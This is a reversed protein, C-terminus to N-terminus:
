SVLAYSGSDVTIGDVTVAKDSYNVYVGIDEGFRTLYVQTVVKEHSTIRKGRLSSLESKMRDYYAKADGLSNMYYYSDEEESMDDTCYWEYYPIAGYEVSKLMQAKSDSNLNIGELSYDVLGHLVAQIFPVTEFGDSDGRSSTSPLGVIGSAYKLTYLNGCNMMIKKSAFVSGFVKTIANKVNERISYAKNSHDTYLSEGADNIYIGKFDQERIDRILSNLSDSIKKHSALGIKEGTISKASSGCSYISYDSFIAVSDDNQTEMLLELEKDSGLDDKIKVSGDEYVGKLILNIHSFGKSKLNTLLENAENFSTLCIGDQSMILSLNFPYDEDKETANERLAGQRILLERLAGAMSIYDSGTSLFRYSLTISGEYTSGSVYLYGDSEKTPTIEFKAWARNYGSTSDARKANISCLSEGGTATCLIASEGNKRGFCAVLAKNDGTDNLGCDSGYTKLTVTTAENGADLYMLEGCGDPLLFYDGKQGIKDCGFFPLLEITGITADCSNDIRQCDVSVTLMGDSLAYSVPVSIDLKDGSDLSQRFTYTIVVGNKTKKYKTLSFALSDKQSSLTYKRGNLYIVLSLTSPIENGKEFPLAHYYKDAVADYICVSMTKEELYMKLMGSSTIETMESNSKSSYLLKEDCADVTTSVEDNSLKMKRSQVRGCCSLSVLLMLCMLIPILRKFNKM